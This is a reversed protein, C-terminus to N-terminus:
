KRTQSTGTHKSTYLIPRITGEATTGIAVSRNPLTVAQRGDVGHVTKRM